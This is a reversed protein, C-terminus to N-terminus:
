ATSGLPGLYQQFPVSNIIADGGMLLSYFFEMMQFAFRSRKERDEGLKCNTRETWVFAGGPQFLCDNNTLKSIGVGICLNLSPFTGDWGGLEPNAPVAFPYRKSFATAGTAGSNKANREDASYCEAFTKDWALSSRVPRLTNNDIYIAVGNLAADDPHDIMPRHYAVIHPKVISDTISRAEVQEPIQGLLALIQAFSHANDRCAAWVFNHRVHKPLTLIKREMRRIIQSTVSNVREETGLPIATVFDVGKLCASLSRKTQDDYLFCHSAVSMLTSADYIQTISAEGGDGNNAPEDTNAEAEQTAMRQLKVPADYFLAALLIWNRDKKNLEKWSTISDKIAPYTTVLSAIKGVSIQSLTGFQAIFDPDGKKSMLRALVFEKCKGREKAIANLIPLPLKGDVLDRALMEPPDDASRGAAKM